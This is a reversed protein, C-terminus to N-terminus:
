EIKQPPPALSLLKLRDREEETKNWKNIIDNNRKILDVPKKESKIKELEAKDIHETSVSVDSQGAKYLLFGGFGVLTIALLIFIYNGTGELSKVYLYALYFGALFLLVGFVTEFLVRKMSLRSYNIKLCNAVNFLSLIYSKLSICRKTIDYM